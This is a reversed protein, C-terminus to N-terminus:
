PITIREQCAVRTNDAMEGIIQNSFFTFFSEVFIVELHVRSLALSHYMQQIQNIYSHATALIYIIIPGIYPIITYGNSIHIPYSKM